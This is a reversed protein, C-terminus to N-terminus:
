PQPVASHQRKIYFNVKLFSMNHTFNCNNTPAACSIRLCHRFRNRRTLFERAVAHYAVFRGIIFSKIIALCESFRQHLKNTNERYFIGNLRGANVFRQHIRASNAHKWSFTLIFQAIKCFKAFVRSLCWIFSTFYLQNAPALM